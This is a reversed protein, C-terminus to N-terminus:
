GSGGCPHLWSKRHHVDKSGGDSTVRVAGEAGYIAVFTQISYTLSGPNHLVTKIKFFASIRQFGVETSGMPFTGWHIGFSLKSRLDRHIVLANEPDVHQNSM